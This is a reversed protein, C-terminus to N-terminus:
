KGRGSQEQDERLRALLHEAREEEEGQERRDDGESEEPAEPKTLVLCRWIPPEAAPSITTSPM